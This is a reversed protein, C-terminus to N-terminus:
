KAWEENSKPVTVKFDNNIIPESITANGNNINSSNSISHIVNTIQQSENNSSTSKNNISIQDQRFTQYKTSQIKRIRDITLQELITHSGIEGSILVKLIQELEIGDTCQEIYTHNIHNLPIHYKKTHSTLVSTADNM